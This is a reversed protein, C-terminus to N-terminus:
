KAGAAARTLIELGKVEVRMDQGGHLQLAIHGETRGKDNKLEATRVDNVHVVIRRGHASVTMRNWKGPKFFKKLDKATPKVVWARGGTEYLGGVDRSADIEAQFGHVSVASKVKQCRFYFGSNGKVAKFQLRITFDKYKADSILLGHRRESRPSSGVIAGDVVEWKGGPMMSFGKLTRGDFMPKWTSIGLDKIRINRWRVKEGVRDPNRGVGHVQLGIFGSQTMSDVLDAAPVGNLWTKMSDGIAEVRVKNWQGQKFAKQAKPNGKLPDLWGRRGEEYIGATFARASPDIEVQYGHVRGNRYAKFSNSRIQVGSNLKPSVNFELELIFDGYHKKTCLFSNPTNPVATGTITGDEVTYKAAGGLQRWGALTKGDFLAVFGDDAAGASGAIAAVAAAAALGVTLCRKATRM